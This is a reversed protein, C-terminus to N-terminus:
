KPVLWLFGVTKWGFVWQRLTANALKAPYLPSLNFFLAPSSRTPLAPLPLIHWLGPQRASTCICCSFLMITSKSEQVKISNRVRHQWVIGHSSAKMNKCTSNFVNCYGSLCGSCKRRKWHMKEEQDDQILKEMGVQASPNILLRTWQSENRSSVWRGNSFLECTSQWLLFQLHNLHERLIYIKILLLTCRLIM